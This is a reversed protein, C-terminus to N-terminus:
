NLFDLKRLIMQMASSRDIVIRAEASIGPLLKAIQGNKEQLYPKTIEAEVVFVTQGDQLVTIDPPVLSISTEIM